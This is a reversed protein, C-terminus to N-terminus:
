CTFIFFNIVSHKPINIVSISFFIAIIFRMNFIYTITKSNLKRYLKHYVYYNIIFILQQSLVADRNYYVILIKIIILDGAFLKRHSFLTESLFYKSRRNDKFIFHLQSHLKCKVQIFSSSTNLLNKLYEVAFNHIAFCSQGKHSVFEVNCQECQM